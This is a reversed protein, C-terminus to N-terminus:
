CELLASLTVGKSVERTPNALLTEVLLVSLLKGETTDLSTFAPFAKLQLQDWGVPAQVLPASCGQVAASPAAVTAEGESTRPKSRSSACQAIYSMDGPHNGARGKRSEFVHRPAAMVLQSSM